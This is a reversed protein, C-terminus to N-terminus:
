RRNIKQQTPDKKQNNNNNQNNQNNNNNKNNQNNNGKKKKKEGDGGILPLEADSFANVVKAINDYLTSGAAIYKALKDAKDMVKDAKDWGTKIEKASLKKLTDVNNIRDIADKMEQATMENKYKLIESASTSTKVIKDRNEKHEQEKREQERKAARAQRAKELAAARAKKRKREQISGLIGRKKKAAGYNDAGGGAKLPYPPGNRVGWKQGKIGHHYLEERWPEM